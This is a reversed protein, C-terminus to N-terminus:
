KERRWDRGECEWSVAAGDSNYTVRCERNRLALSPGPRYVLVHFIKSEQTSFPPRSEAWSYRAQPSGWISVVQGETLGKIDNQRLYREMKGVALIDRECLWGQLVIFAVILTAVLTPIAIRTPM